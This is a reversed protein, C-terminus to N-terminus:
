EVRRRVALVSLDSFPTDDVGSGGAYGAVEALSVRRITETDETPTRARSAVIQPSSTGLTVRVPKEIIDRVTGVFQYRSHNPDDILVATGRKRDAVRKAFRTHTHRRHSGHEICDALGFATSLANGIVAIADDYVDQKDLGLVSAPTRTMGTQMRFKVGNAIVKRKECNHGGGTIGAKSMMIDTLIPSAELLVQIEAWVPVSEAPEGADTTGTFRFLQQFETEGM